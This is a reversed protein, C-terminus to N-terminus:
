AKLRKLFDTAFNSVGFRDLIMNIGKLVFQRRLFLYVALICGGVVTGLVSPAFIRVGLCLSAVGLLALGEREVIPFVSFGFTKKGFVNYLLAETIHATAQSLGAGYLGLWPILMWALLLSVSGSLVTIAPIGRVKGRIFLLNGYHEFANQAIPAVALTALVLGAGSIRGSSLLRIAFEGFLYCGAFLFGSVFLLSLRIKEHTLITAGHRSIIKDSDTVQLPLYAKGVSRFVEEVNGFLRVAFAYTGLEELGLFRSILLQDARRILLTGFNKSASFCGLHLLSIFLRPRFSINIIKALFCFNWISVVFLGVLNGAILAEGRWHGWALFGFSAGAGALSSLIDAFASRKAQGLLVRLNGALGLPTLAADIALWIVLGKSLEKEDLSSYLFSAGVEYRMLLAFTVISALSLAYSLLLIHWVLEGQERDKMKPFRDYLSWDGNFTLPFSVFSKLLLFIAFVGYDQKTIFLFYLPVIAIALVRNFAVSGFYFGFNRSISM